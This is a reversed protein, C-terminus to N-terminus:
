IGAEPLFSATKERVFRSIIILWKRQYNWEDFGKMQFNSSFLANPHQPHQRHAAFIFAEEKTQLDLLTRAHLLHCNKM